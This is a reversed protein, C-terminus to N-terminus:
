NSLGNADPNAAEVDLYSKTSGLPPVIRKGAPIWSVSNIAAAIASAVTALSDTSKFPIRINKNNTLNNNSDFEFTVTLMADSITFTQGDLLANGAVAQIGHGQYDNSFNNGVVRIVDGSKANAVATSIDNYPNALTGNGPDAGVGTTRKDVILTQNQRYPRSSTSGSIRHGGAVGDADGDLAVGKM